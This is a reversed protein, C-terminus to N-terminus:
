TLEVRLCIPAFKSNDMNFRGIQDGGYWGALRHRFVPKEQGFDVKGHREHVYLGAIAGPGANMYKYTCWAAFDVNWDHLQLPVNGAAHALDWGVILGKSQAHKTITKIDFLQGTYYQIGPLLLLATTSAHEDIVALIKETSVEYEGKEPGVMIMAAEPDYGHGRIQSEIAYHDSPFAKWDLIIKNKEKTPTYFSAMLLHLNMTLSGMTAVESPSAGVIPAQLKSAQEALLQWQCLPSEEIDRFHGNVGITAWTDLHVQLYEAIARPQLGLSNGCFYICQDNSQEIAILHTSLESHSPSGPKVVRKSKMNSKSPIIFKERFSRLYDKSDLSQAYQLTNAEPPFSPKKPSQQEEIAISGMDALSLTTTASQQIKFLYILTNNVVLKQVRWEV